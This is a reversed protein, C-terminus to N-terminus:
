GFTLCDGKRDRRDVLSGHGPRAFLPNDGRGWWRAGGGVSTRVSQGWPAGYREGGEIEGDRPGWKPCSRARARSVQRVPRASRYGGGLDWRPPSGASGHKRGPTRTQVSGHHPLPSPPFSAHADTQDPRSCGRRGARPAADRHPPCGVSGSIPRSRPPVPDRRAGRIVSGLPSEHRETARGGWPPGYSQAGVKCGTQGQRTM